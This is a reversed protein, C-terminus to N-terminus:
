LFHTIIPRYWWPCSPCPGESFGGLSCMLIAESLVFKYVFERGQQNFSAGPATPQGASLCSMGVPGLLGGPLSVHTLPICLTQGGFSCTVDLGRPIPLAEGARLHSCVYRGKM